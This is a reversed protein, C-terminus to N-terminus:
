RSSDLRRDVLERAVEYLAIAQEDALRDRIANLNSRLIVLDRRLDSPPPQDRAAKKCARRVWESLGVESALALQEYQARDDPRIRFRITADSIKM